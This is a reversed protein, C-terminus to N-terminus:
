QAGKANDAAMELFSPTRLDLLSDANEKKTGARIVVPLSCREPWRM